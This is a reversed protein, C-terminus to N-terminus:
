QRKVIGDVIFKRSVSPFAGNSPTASIEQCGTLDFFKTRGNGNENRIYLSIIDEDMEEKSRHFTKTPGEGNEMYDDYYKISKEEGGIFASYSFEFSPLGVLIKKPVPAFKSKSGSCEYKPELNQSMSFDFSIVDRVIKGKYELSFDYYPVVARENGQTQVPLIMDDGYQISDRSRWGYNIEDIRVFFSMSVSLLSDRGISFSFSTFYCESFEWIIGTAFDKFKIKFEGNRKKMISDVISRFLNRDLEFEISLDIKPVDQIYPGKTRKLDLVSNAYGMAGQSQIIENEFSSSFNVCSIKQYSSSLPTKLWAANTFGQCVLKTNGM